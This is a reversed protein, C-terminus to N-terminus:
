PGILDVAVANWPAVEVLFIKRLVLEFKIESAITLKNSWVL